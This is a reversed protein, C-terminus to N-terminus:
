SKINFKKFTVDKEFIKSTKERNMSNLFKKVFVTIFDWNFVIQIYEVSRSISEYNKEYQNFKKFSFTLQKFM